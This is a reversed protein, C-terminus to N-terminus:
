LKRWPCYTGTEPSPIRRSKWPYELRYATSGVRESFHPARRRGSRRDSEDPCGRRRRRAARRAGLEQATPDRVRERLMPHLGGVGRAVAAVDVARRPVLPPERLQTRAHDRGLEQLQRVQPVRQRRRAREREERLQFLVELVELGVADGVRRDVDAVAFADDIPPERVLAELEM